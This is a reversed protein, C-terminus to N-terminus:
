EMAMARVVNAIREAEAKTLDFPLGHIRVVLDSRIPIPYVNPAHSITPAHHEVDESLPASPSNKTKKKSMDGSSRAVNTSTKFNEPDSTYRRFDDISNQVRGRYVKLSKPAYTKGKLNNFRSMVQDIDLQTVDAKEEPDLIGLVKSCAAKRGFATNKAMLGKDALWDLFNLLDELSHEM